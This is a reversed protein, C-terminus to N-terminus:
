LEQKLTKRLFFCLWEIGARSSEYQDSSIVVFGTKELMNQLEKKKFYQFFRAEDSHEHKAVEYKKDGIQAKTALFLIGNVKIVRYFEGLAKTVETEDKLHLISAQAWIANFSSNKFPMNLM